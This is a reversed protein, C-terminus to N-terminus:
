DVKKSSFYKKIIGILALFGIGILKWSKALMAFLGVKALVKGAILGGIGYAAVKDLSPNFDSYKEGSNFETSSLIVPIDKQVSDLKDIDSIINLVLVGKRGLMRINYNLTNVESDGFKINKAWHLKKAEFDYFPKSAWGVLELTPYGEKVREDNSDKTEEQMTKLLEDYDLSKADEDEVHGDEDFSITAAYTFKESLPTENKKFIMGLISKDPPNGWVDHLVFQSQKSDLFKFGTPVNITALGEKISVKGTEYKLTEVTLTPKDQANISFNLLFSLIITILPLRM